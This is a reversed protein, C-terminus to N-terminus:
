NDPGFLVGKLLTNLVWWIASWVLGLLLVNGFYTFVAYGFSDGRQAVNYAWVMPLIVVVLRGAFMHVMMAFSILPFM